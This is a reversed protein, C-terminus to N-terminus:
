RSRGFWTIHVPIRIASATWVANSDLKELLLQLITKLTALIFATKTHIIFECLLHHHDRSIGEPYLILYRIIMSADPAM